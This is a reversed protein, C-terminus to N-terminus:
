FHARVSFTVAAPEGPLADNFAQSCGYPNIAKGKFPGTAFNGCSSPSVQNYFYQFYKTNFINLVNLDFDVYTLPGANHVPLRYNVDLNFIAFPSIGGNKNYFTQGTTANYYEYSGFAAPNGQLPGLNLFGNGDITTQQKGTYQGEFRVNLEDDHLAINHHNYAVGFTSVWDPVGTIPAGRIALGFQDEQVTVSANYSKLYKALTYSVNGFVQWRPTVQYIAAAEFGKMERQGANSYLEQLYTPSSPTQDQFFGFDREVHQYFYDISLSLNNRNYKVGAEYMHVISANPPAGGAASNVGYDQVPAFISSTAYSAYLSVGRAAPLIKDLDYAANLFPLWTRDWKHIKYEGYAAGANAASPTGGLVESGRLSTDSTQLTVGPTIHLTNDLLDIKDQAYGEYITRQVGGDFGSTLNAPTHSFESTSGYYQQGAAISGNPAYPEIEKAILAGVKITNDIGFVRPPTITVRPQLIYTDSHTSQYSSNFGCPSKQNAAAFQATTSAPCNTLPNPNLTYVGPVYNSTGLGYGSQQGFGAITQNFPNAGGVGVSGSEGNPAFITPNGYTSSYTDSYLYSGTIGASIYDNIYTDNKLIMTFYDNYQRQFQQDPSYNSFRGNQQTYPLPLPEPTILGSGTNYNVTAQFLSQADDYPKDFAFSMNNYRAPTYDIFGSTQLNSYKLMMTPADVGTGLIGNMRGSNVDFGENWTGFSGISGFLDAGAKKDPRLSDYAVTGGITGFTSKDPYAVGPYVSVGSIQDLNFHAGLLGSLYSGSGGSLLDQMPVGDLTQAVELGRVGRITLVPSNNGIGQQYVNVSPAARLLTAVSGGVSTQSIQAAGLETVASPADKERLLRRHARVTINESNGATKGNQTNPAQTGADPRIGSPTTTSPVQSWAATGSLGTIIM